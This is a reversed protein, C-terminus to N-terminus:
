VGNTHRTSTGPLGTDTIYAHLTNTDIVIDNLFSNDRSALSENFVFTRVLRDLTLDWIVLKISGPIAPQNNVRGTAVAILLCM